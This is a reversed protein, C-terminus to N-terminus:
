SKLAARLARALAAYGADTPHIDGTAMGVLGHFAQQNTTAENIVARARAIRVGPLFTNVANVLAANVGPSLQETVPLDYEYANYYDFVVVEANPALARVQGVFQLLGSIMTRVGQDICTLLNQPPGAQCGFLVDRLDNSGLSVSVVATQAGNQRLWALAAARQSGAYPDHLAAGGSPQAFACPTDLLSVREGPCSLNVVEVQRGRGVLGTLSPAVLDVYGRYLDADISGDAVDEAILADQYGYALSDGLALYYATPKPAASAPAQVLPVLLTAAAVASLTRVLRRRLTM